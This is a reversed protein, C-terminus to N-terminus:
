QDIQKISFVVPVLELFTTESTSDQDELHSSWSLFFFWKGHFYGM